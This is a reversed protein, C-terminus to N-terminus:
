LRLIRPGLSGSLYSAPTEAIVTCKDKLWPKPNPCSLIHAQSPTQAVAPRLGCEM